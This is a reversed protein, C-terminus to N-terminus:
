ILSYVQRGTLRSPSSPEDEEHEEDNAEEDDKRVRVTIHFRLIMNDLEPNRKSTTYIEKQLAQYQEEGEFETYRPLTKQQSKAKTMWIYRYLKRADQIVDLPQRTKKTICHDLREIFENFTANVNLTSSALTSSSKGNLVIDIEGPVPAL